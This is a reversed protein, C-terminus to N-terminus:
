PTLGNAPDKFLPQENAEVIDDYDCTVPNGFKAEICKIEPRYNVSEDLQVAKANDLSGKTGDLNHNNNLFQDCADIDTAIKSNPDCRAVSPWSEVIDSAEESSLQLAKANDLSGKTGDLNHNNNLFQDCADIDTSIKSDPNCRAVSPWEQDMQLAKANDLSGKTGDLNHNNNLFQDCADIDTSIKSDPNCRAVSPWQKQLQVASTAALLAAIVFARM